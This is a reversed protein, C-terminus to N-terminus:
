KYACVSVDVNVMFIVQLTVLGLSFVHPCVIIHPVITLKTLENFPRCDSAPELIAKPLKQRLLSHICANICIDVCQIEYLQRDVFWAYWIGSQQNIIGLLCIQKKGARSPYYIIVYHKFSHLIHLRLADEM